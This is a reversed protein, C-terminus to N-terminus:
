QLAQLIKNIVQFREPATESSITFTLKQAGQLKYFRPHKQILQIIKLPEILPKATFEISGGQENVQIKTIGLKKAQLKLETVQFLNKSEEPLLSFRDIMEVQLDKLEVENKANAIRKYLVLRTQVDQIYTDPIIASLYLDIETHQMLPKNFDPQQGSKLAKVARDLFEMYLSFGIAEIQGSQGEGLLEGAGRIEMDHTALTFGAGLDGTTAIVELRKQADRTMLKTDPVLLYAYAQHHSRGVRGRLQHLQALGLKDARDMIITNASPIDIGNEIITTCVLVNFRQHYFDAMVRELDREHMQGHGIDIKAEPVLECLERTTQEITSVKNHLFYVQGGRSIERLIAERIVQKNRQQIFTKISLRKAPPTAILSLERIQALSMNLTRPIPTATLTLINVDTRLAKIREKQRVGFRHEEDIVLLGLNSFKVDNQLLKHTGIIIDVKGQQLKELAQQQQKATRFRSLLEISVAWNAFRDKFTQYHQEALLTTPVLVAVQYSNQVAVFAARMAVETKGFGVDGCVLRDMATTKVMDHIVQEIARLQDPTEEFPFASAFAQYHEDVPACQQGPKAARRAYLDLLEAAADRARQAAKQKAKNWQQTGLHHLPPHEIDAASYRSLLHLDAVPVHLKAGEAYKLTAFETIIDGTQITNLEIYCGVGHDIHVVPMGPRLEILSCIFNDEDFKRQSRLRRQMVREGYLQSETIILISPDLADLGFDLGGITIALKEKSSLFEQWNAVSPLRLSIGSFLELLAQRRGETEACFLVRQTTQVLHQQLKKLPAKNQSEIALDPLAKIAFNTNEVGATLSTTHLTIQPYQKCLSFVQEVPLFLQQPPLLPRTVDSSYQEYRQRVEHWFQEAAQYINESQVVMTNQPLYDFLTATKEYFLPLYYEIGNPSLGSSVDGYIPCNMPRGSFRESWAQRFHAISDATLPFEKAPLLNIAPLQILSRQTEPDFTRISDIEDGLLDLRYPLENGMPYLDMIAGRIAFEGHQMVQEVARYGATTLNKRM